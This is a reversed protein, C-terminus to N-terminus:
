CAEELSSQSHGRLPWNLVRRPLDGSLYYVCQTIRETDIKGSLFKFSFEFKKVAKADKAEFSQAIIIAPIVALIILLVVAKKMNIM